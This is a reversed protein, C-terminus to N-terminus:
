VSWVSEVLATDGIASANQDVSQEAILGDNNAARSREAADCFQKPEPHVSEPQLFVRASFHGSANANLEGAANLDNAGPCEGDADVLSM